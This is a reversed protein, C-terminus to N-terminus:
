HFVSVDVGVLLSGLEAKPLPLCKNILIIISPTFKWCIYKHKDKNELLSSTEMMTDLVSTRCNERSPSFRPPLHFFLKFCKRINRMIKNSFVRCRKEVDSM